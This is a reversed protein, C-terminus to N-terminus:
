LGQHEGVGRESKLASTTKISQKQKIVKNLVHKMWWMNKNGSSIKEMMKKWNKNPVSSGKRYCTMKCLDPILFYHRCFHPM